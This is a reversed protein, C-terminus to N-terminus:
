TNFIQYIEDYGLFQDEEIHYTTDNVLVEGEGQFSSTEPM